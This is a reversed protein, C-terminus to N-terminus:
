VLGISKFNWEFELCFMRSFTIINITCYLLKKEKGLIPVIEQQRDDYRTKRIYIDGERKKSNKTKDPTNLTSSAIKRENITYIYIHISLDFLVYLVYISM